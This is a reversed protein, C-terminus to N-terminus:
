GEILLMGLPPTDEDIVVNWGNPIVVDDGAVPKKGGVRTFMSANAWTAADSWYLTGNRCLLTLPLTINFCYWVAHVESWAQCPHALPM